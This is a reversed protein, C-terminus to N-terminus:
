QSVATTSTSSSSTFAPNVETQASEGITTTSSASAIINDNDTDPDVSSASASIVPISDENEKEVEIEHNNNNNDNELEQSSNSPIQNSELVTENYQDQQISISSEHAEDASLTSSSSVVTAATVTNELTQQSLKNMINKIETKELSIHDLLENTNLSIQQYIEETIENSKYQLKADFLVSKIRKSEIELESLRQHLRETIEKTNQGLKDLRKEYKLYAFEADDKMNDNEAVIGQLAKIRKLAMSKERLLKQADLRWRPIFIVYDGQVLLQEYPLNKIGTSGCDVSVSEISGDIDTIIGIVKGIYTGYMDKVKKGVFELKLESMIKM